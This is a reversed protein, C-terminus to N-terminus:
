MDERDIVTWSSYLYCIGTLTSLNNWALLISLADIQRKENQLKTTHCDSCHGSMYGIGFSTLTPSSHWCTQWTSMRRIVKSSRMYINTGLWCTVTMYIKRLIPTHRLQSPLHNAIISVALNAIPLSWVQSRFWQFLHPLETWAQDFPGGGDNWTKCTTMWISLDFSLLDNLLEHTLVSYRCHTVLAQGSYQHVFKHGLHTIHSIIYWFSDSLSSMHASVLYSIGRVHEQLNPTSRLLTSLIGALVRDIQSSTLLLATFFEYGLMQLNRIQQSPAEGRIPSM